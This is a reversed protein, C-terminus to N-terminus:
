SAAGRRLWAEVASASGRSNIPLEFDVYEVIAFLCARNVADAKKCALYLDNTLVAYLFGGTRIRQQVYRDLAALAEPPVRDRLSSM